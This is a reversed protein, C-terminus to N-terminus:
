SFPLVDSEELLMKFVQQCGCHSWCLLPPFHSLPYTKSINTSLHAARMVSDSMKSCLCKSYCSARSACRV